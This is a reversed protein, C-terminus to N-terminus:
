NIEKRIVIKEGPSNRCFTDIGGAALFGVGRAPFFMMEKSRGRSWRGLEKERRM